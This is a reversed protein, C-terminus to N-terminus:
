ELSSEQFTSSSFKRIYWCAKGFSGLDSCIFGIRLAKSFYVFRLHVFRSYVAASYL